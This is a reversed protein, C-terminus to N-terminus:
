QNLRFTAVNYDLVAQLHAPDAHVQRVSHTL